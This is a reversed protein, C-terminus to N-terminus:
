ILKDQGAKVNPFMAPAAGPASVAFTFTAGVQAGAFGFNGKKDTKASPFGAKIDTRYVEILAGAVPVKTGDAQELQVIGGVPAYQAAASVSIALVSAAAAFFSVLLKRSM